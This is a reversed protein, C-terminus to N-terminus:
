TSLLKAIVAVFGAAFAILLLVAMVISHKSKTQFFRVFYQLSSGACNMAVASLLVLYNEFMLAVIAFILLAVQSGIIYYGDSLMRNRKEREDGNKKNQNKIEELIEKNDM